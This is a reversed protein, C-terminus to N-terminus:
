YSTRLAVAPDMKAAKRAPLYASALTVGSIIFFAAAINSLVIPFSFRSASLFLQLPSDTSLQILGLLGSLALSIALGIVAGGLALVLAEALFINRVDKRQMGIARMTGIERTREILIMRFTNLLGVMTILILVGFIGYSVANLINVMSTISAMMDDISLVFFRTGDWRDSEEISTAFLGSGGMMSRMAGMQAMMGALGGEEEDSEPETRGLRALEELVYESTPTAQRPDKLVITLTQYQDAAIGLISNLYLRDAYGSSIGFGFVTDDDIIACIEFEAVTQQGTVTSTRALVTEGVAVGLEDATTAPIALGRPNFDKTIRGSVLRLGDILAPENAWDIGEVL